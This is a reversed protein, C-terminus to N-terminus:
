LQTSATCTTMLCIRQRRNTMLCIRHGRKSICPWGIQLCVTNRGSCNPVARFFGKIKEGNEALQSFVERYCQFSTNTVTGTITPNHTYTHTRLAASRVKASGERSSGVTCNATLHGTAGASGCGKSSVAPSSCGTFLRQEGTLLFLKNSATM